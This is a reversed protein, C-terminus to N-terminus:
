VGSCRWHLALSPSLRPVVRVPLQEGVLFLVIMVVLVALALVAFFPRELPKLQLTAARGTAGALCRGHCSPYASHAGTGVSVGLSVRQLYELFTM